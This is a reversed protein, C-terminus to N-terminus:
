KILYDNRDDLNEEQSSKIDEKLRSIFKETSTKEEPRFEARLINRHQSLIESVQVKQNTKTSEFFKDSEEWEEIVEKLNKVLDAKLIAEKLQTLAYIKHDPASFFFNHKSKTLSTIEQDIKKIIEKRNLPDNVFKEPL